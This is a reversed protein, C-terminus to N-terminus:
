LVTLQMPVTGGGGTLSSGREADVEAGPLTSPRLSTASVITPSLMVRPMLPPWRLRTPGKPLAPGSPLREVAAPQAKSAEEWEACANAEQGTGGRGWSGHDTGVDWQGAGRAARSGQLHGRPLDQRAGLAHQEHVLDAGPQVPPITCGGAFRRTAGAWVGQRLPGARGARGVRRRQGVLAHRCPQGWRARGRGAGGAQGGARLAVM